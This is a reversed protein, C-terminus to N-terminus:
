FVVYNTQSDIEGCENGYNVTIGGDSSVVLVLAGPVSECLWRASTHRAGGASSICTKSHTEVPSAEIIGGFGILHADRTMVVAGDCCALQACSSGFSQINSVAFEPDFLRMGCGSGLGESVDCTKVLLDTEGYGKVLTDLSSGAAKFRIDIHDCSDVDPVVIIAGEHRGLEMARLMEALFPLMISDPFEVTHEDMHRGWTSDDRLSSTAREVLARDAERLWSNVHGNQYFSRLRHIRGKVYALGMGAEQYEIHGPGRIAVRMGCAVASQSPSGPSQVFAVGTIALEEDVIRVVIETDLGDAAQSFQRLTESSFERLPEDCELVYSRMVAPNPFHFMTRIDRGEYKQLSLFYSASLLSALTTTDPFDAYWDHKQHVKVLHQVRERIRILREVFSSFDWLSNQENM